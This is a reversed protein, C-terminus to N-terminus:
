KALTSPQASSLAARAQKVQSQMSQVDGEMSLNAKTLDDDKHVLLIGGVLMGAVLVAIVTWLLFILRANPDKV